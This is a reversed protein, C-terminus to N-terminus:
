LVQTCNTAAVVYEDETTSLFTCSQKKNIWSVLKKGLFFAGGLTRKWDDVDRTWDADIYACLTFDDNKPYWLGYETIGQLYRFIRKVASEHNDRPDSQYRSIICVANMIDSRTQTLYLLGGIMSKYRTPNVLASADKKTLKESTVMPTGVPKSNEM